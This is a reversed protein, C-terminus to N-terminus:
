TANSSADQEKKRKKRIISILHSEMLDAKRLLYVNADHM